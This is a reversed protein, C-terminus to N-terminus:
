SKSIKVISLQEPIASSGKVKHKPGAEIIGAGLEKVFVELEEQPVEYNLSPDAYHVPVVMKPEIQRVMTAADSADLTYGGGGVPIVVIDIVGLSELQDDNLAPAVNGIIAIKIDGITMKYITSQMGQEETDIHRKSPMGILSVDGLEYEGPGSFWLKPTTKEVAFRDETTVEVDDKVSVDTGGALSVRPDFVVKTNKTTFVVANAGKYEIDFM